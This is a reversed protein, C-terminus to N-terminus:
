GATIRSGEASDPPLHTPPHDISLPPIKRMKRIWETITDGQNSRDLATSTASIGGFIERNEV